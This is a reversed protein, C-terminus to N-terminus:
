KTHTTNNKLFTPHRDCYQGPQCLSCLTLRRRQESEWGERMAQPTCQWDEGAHSFVEQTDIWPGFWEDDVEQLGPERFDRTSYDPRMFYTPSDNNHNVENNLPTRSHIPRMRSGRAGYKFM